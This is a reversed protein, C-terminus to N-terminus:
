WYYFILSYACKKYTYSYFTRPREWWNWKWKSVLRPVISHHYSLPYIKSAKIIMLPDRGTCMKGWPLGTNNKKARVEATTRTMALLVEVVISSMVVTMPIPLLLLTESIVVSSGVVTMMPLDIALSGEGRAASTVFPHGRQSHVDGFSGYPKKVAVGITVDCFVKISKIATGVAVVVIGSCRCSHCCSIAWPGLWFSHSFHLVILSVVLTSIPVPM